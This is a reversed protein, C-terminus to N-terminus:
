RTFVRTCMIGNLQYDLSAGIPYTGDLKALLRRDYIPDTLWFAYDRGAHSFRSRVRRESSGFAEGPAFVILM